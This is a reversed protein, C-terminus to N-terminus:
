VKVKPIDPLPPPGPIITGDKVGEIYDKCEKIMKPKDTHSLSYYLRLAAQFFKKDPHRLNAWKKLIKTYKSM